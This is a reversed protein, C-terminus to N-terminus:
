GEVVEYSFFTGDNSISAATNYLAMVDDASLPTAYIRFDSLSVEVCAYSASPGDRGLMIATPSSLGSSMTVSTSKEMVGDYYRKVATGDYILTLMHWEGNLATTSICNDAYRTGNVFLGGRFFGGNNVCIEYWQRHAVSDVVMHYNNTPSTNTSKFWINLTVAEPSFILVPTSIRTNSGHSIYTSNTYRSSDVKTTLNGIKTGHNGFGSCDYVINEDRTTNPKIFPTVHDKQEIQWGGLWYDMTKCPYTYFSMNIRDTTSQTTFTGWCRYWGNGVSQIRNKNFVGFEKIKTGSAYEYCYLMNAHTYTFNDSPKIYCSYTYATSASADITCIGRSAGGGTSGNQGYVIEGKMGDSFPVPDNTADYNIWQTIHGGWTSNATTGPRIVTCLNSSTEIYPDSLKYHLVLGQSIKKVELPSLCHDYLRFDQIAGNFSFYGNAYSERGICTFTNDSDFSNSTGRNVSNIYEGNKYLKVIRNSDCTCVLHTWENVPVTCNLYTNYDSCLIDVKTNDQNVGFAWRKNATNWNGSSFISGNYHVHNGYPKVWVSVTHDGNLVDTFTDEIRIGNIVQTGDGAKMAQSCTKGTVWSLTGISSITYNSLGQNKINGNLPLWLRLSM